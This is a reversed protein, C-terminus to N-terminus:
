LLVGEKIVPSGIVDEWKSERKLCLAYIDDERGRFAAPCDWSSILSNRGHILAYTFQNPKNAGDFANFVKRLRDYNVRGDEGIVGYGDDIQWGYKEMFDRDVVDEFTKMRESEEM